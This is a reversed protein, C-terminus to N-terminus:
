VFMLISLATLVLLVGALFRSDAYWPGKPVVARNSWTLDALKEADPKAESLAAIWFIGAAVFTLLVATYTFHLGYLGTTQAIFLGLSVLHTGALTIIGTRGGGRHTFVGMVFLIIVPPVAFTLIQQLYDFLGEFYQIMPAWIAALIMFVFTCIRGVRATEKDTMNERRPKVFDLTVLTSASNLTSDISSMIAAILGAMVLGLVGVPLYERVLTPFVQDPDTLDPLLVVAMIGPLVMIFLPSLKLFGALLAGRQAHAMNKAGLVRQVIYQNMSWYYFGLLLVGTFMGPWPLDPDNAPRMMSLHGNYRPSARVGETVAAWSYDFQSFCIIALIATGLLLIVGQIVDTFVVAALGGAATYIGALLALVICTTWIDLGPFFVQLVMAGAFLSGATDVVLSLFINLASFYRRARPGYRRELFEPVTSIRSKLYFPILVFMMVVLVISTGWEFASVAVGYRYANGALGVLTTSSINSAFLSFGIVPWVLRRGALFLDEGGHTRRAVYVGIWVVAIFYAVIIALDLLHIPMKM